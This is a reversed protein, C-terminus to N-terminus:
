DVTPMDGTPANIRYVLRDSRYRAREVFRRLSPVVILARGCEFSFSDFRSRQKKGGARGTRGNCVITTEDFNMHMPSLSFPSTCNPKLLKSVLIM